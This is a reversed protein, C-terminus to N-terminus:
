GQDMVFSRLAATVEPQPGFWAAFSPRGQHLLMGLGDVGTCGKARAAALQEDTGPETDASSEPGARSAPAHEAEAPIEDLTLPGEAAEAHPEPPVASEEELPREPSADEHGAEAEAPAPGTGDGDNAPETEAREVELRAGSARHTMFGVTVPRAFADNIFGRIREISHSSVVEM